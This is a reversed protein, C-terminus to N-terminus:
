STWIVIEFRVVHDQNNNNINARIHFVNPNLQHSFCTAYVLIQWLILSNKDDLVIVTFYILIHLLDSANAGDWRSYINNEVAVEFKPQM